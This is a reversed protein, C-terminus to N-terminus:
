CIEGILDYESVDSIKVPVIDGVSVTGKTVLVGNDIEPADFETRGDFLYKGGVKEDIMVPMTKGIFKRNNELSVKSQMEMIVKKREEKVTQPIQDKMKSAYTGTERSYSFVGLREFKVEQIFKCLEAFQKETEGPFGVIVTTRLFIESYMERINMIRRRIRSGSVERRMAKLINNSIHQIPIDIYRCIKPEEAVMELIRKNLGGPYNYLLRLWTLNKIKILRKLLETLRKKAYIDIGYDTTDQSILIIEKVGKGVLTEVEKVISDIQRSRLLGKVEPIICFSCKRNCGDSIKVFAYHSPGSLLRKSYDVTAWRPPKMVLSVRESKVVRRIADEIDGFAYTGLVADVEEIEEMIEKGYRQGLCGFVIVKKDELKCLRLIEGISEKRADEVFTCTNILIIDANEPCKSLRHNKSLLGAIM